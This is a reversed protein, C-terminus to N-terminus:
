LHLDHPPEIGRSSNRTTSMFRSFSALRNDIVSGWASYFLLGELFSAVFYLCFLKLEATLIKRVM